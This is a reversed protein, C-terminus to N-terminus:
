VHAPADLPVAGVPRWTPGRGGLRRRLAQLELYLTVDRGRLGPLARPDGGLWPLFPNRRLTTHIATRVTPHNSPARAHFGFTDAVVLTNAPVAVRRPPGYGLAGLESAAVRFSGVAHHRNPHSRATLSQAYEWALRGETARHSGPVYTFPGDDEGVDSLFFWGKTTSHFTDAHFFTQPDARGKPSPEAIITQLFFSPRGGRSAAYRILALVAPDDLFAALRPLSALLPPPLPVMREVTGGGSQRQEWGPLPRGGLEAKLAAFAEPPLFDRKAIYGDRNFAARDSPDLLRGIRARRRAAMTAAANLRALHLGKRNLYPSGLIPNDAFSKDAGFVGAVWLPSKLLSLPALRAM